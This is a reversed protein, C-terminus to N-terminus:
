RKKKRYEKKTEVRNFCDNYISAWNIWKPFSQILRNVAYPMPIIGENKWRYVQVKDVGAAAAIEKVGVREILELISLKKM